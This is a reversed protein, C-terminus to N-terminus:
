KRWDIFKANPSNWPEWIRRSLMTNVLQPLRGARCFNAFECHKFFEFCTGNFFGETPAFQIHEITPYHKRLQVLRRALNIITLYWAEIMTNTVEYYLLASKTHELRCESFPMAHKSCRKSSSPLLVLEMGNIYAGPCMEGTEKQTAWTYGILQSSLKFGDTWNKNIYHTTKHDLPIIFGTAKDKIKLDRKIWFNIEGKQDLPMGLITEAELVEFIAREVPHRDIHISMHDSINGLSFRDNSVTRESPFLSHYEQEFALTAEAKTGGTYHVEFGSHCANGADMADSAEGRGSYGMDNLLMKTTCKPLNSIHSNDIDIPM